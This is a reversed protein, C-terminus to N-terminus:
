ARRHLFELRRDEGGDRPEPIQKVFLDEVRDLGLWFRDPRKKARHKGGVARQAVRQAYVEAALKKRFGVVTEAALQPERDRRAGSKVFLDGAVEVLEAKRDNLAVPQGFGATGGGRGAEVIVTDALDSSCVDSSWDRSFSTHRRRSSF